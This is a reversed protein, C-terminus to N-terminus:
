KDVNKRNSTQSHGAANNCNFTRNDTDVTQKKKAPLKAQLKVEQSSNSNEHYFGNHLLERYSLMQTQYKAGQKKHSTIAQMFTEIQIYM